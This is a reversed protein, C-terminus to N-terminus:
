RMERGAEAFFTRVTELSEEQTPFSEEGALEKKAFTTFSSRLCVTGAEDIFEVNVVQITKGKRLVRADVTVRQGNVHIGECFNFNCQLTVPKSGNTYVAMCAAMDSVTMYFGGHLDGYPNRMASSTNFALVVHGPELVECEVDGFGGIDCLINLCGQVRQEDLGEDVRM